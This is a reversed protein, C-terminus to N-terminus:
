VRIAHASLAMSICGAVQIGAATCANAAEKMTMGSTVVDDVLVIRKPMDDYQEICFVGHINGARKELTLKAQPQKAQARVLFDSVVPILTRESLRTAFVLAQNFGRWKERRIHLPVPVFADVGLGAIQSDWQESIAKAALSAPFTIGRFKFQKVIEDYPASYTAFAFLPLPADCCRQKTNDFRYFGFCNLCFPDQLRDIRKDCVTCIAPYESVVAECGPCLPPFFFDVLPSLWPPYTNQLMDMGM